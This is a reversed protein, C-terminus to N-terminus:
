GLEGGELIGSSFAAYMGAYVGDHVMLEQHSGSEVIEGRRLVLIRTARAATTLRHAIFLTTKQCMLETLAGTVARESVADLNSTAEDLLLVLPDRVLARAIALRQGEGGSLRVGREGLVTMYGDPTSSVFGDAHAMEAARKVADDPADADGLRLNDLITGAFLFTQQPVVGFLRRYWPTRLERIDVGDLLIQGSTPDYFRLLLDAITSKGAGSPGVLALSTGPEIVFSVNNLARTGDPYEFTVNRFEIRGSPSPLEVGDDRLHEEPVDLVEGYIRDAAAQVQNYTNNVNALSRAGQNIIDLAYTLAVIQSIQLDGVRALMGCIYLVVALAVAGILEVMPRLQAFRRIARLQSEFQREVLARYLGGVRQEAAFAKVVRVGSLAEQSMATLDSLDDQVRSQAAKMKKGNQHVFWAMVPIFLLSILALKWNIFFIAGLSLIGKTPGDISDRILTVANQYVNIDNTLVSQIGGTHKENFYSIPLRQLRNFLRIRLDSALAAAAKSLYYAQGRTFFYKLLFFGVVIMCVFGLRRLAQDQRVTAQEKTESRESQARVKSVAERLQEVPVKLEHSLADENPLSTQIDIKVPASDQIAQIAEKTLPIMAATLMSTVAVCVLGKLITKRQTKLEAGIRRDFPRFLRM